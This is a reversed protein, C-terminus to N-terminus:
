ELWYYFYHLILKTNWPKTMLVPMRRINKLVSTMFHDNEKVQDQRDVVYRHISYIRSGDVKCDQFIVLNCRQTTNNLIPTCIFQGLTCDCERLHNIPFDMTTVLQVVDGTEIGEFAVNMEFNGYLLQTTDYIETWVGSAIEQTLHITVQGGELLEIKPAEIEQATCVKFYLKLCRTNDQIDNFAFLM